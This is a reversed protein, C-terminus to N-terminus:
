GGGVFHVLEIRMNVFVPTDAWQEATLVRGDAEVVIPKGSLELRVIVDQITNVQELEQQEGNIILKM